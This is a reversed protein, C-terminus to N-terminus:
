RSPAAAALAMELIRECLTPYDVGAHAAVKPLLSHSTMGPLTNVELIFASGDAQVRLDARAYGTCGLAHYARLGLAECTDIHGRELEPPVLFATDDRVYKAEYDYLGSTPRIEVAGLVRDALIGVSLEVGEIYREVLVPGQGARARELAPGIEDRERVLSLGVSSGEYAPKIVLPLAWEAFVAATDGEDPRLVRWQPTPVGVSEFLRKSLIKDMAVASAAISAGTCPLGMCACLGQVAGDEGYTGHLANWVVEVRHEVLLAPLSSGPTWDVGVCEYGREQLAALVGAGSELSVERESSPGGYLVGVRRETCRMHPRPDAAVATTSSETKEM